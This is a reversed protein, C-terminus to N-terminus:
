TICAAWQRIDRAESGLGDSKMEEIVTQAFSILGGSAEPHKVAQLSAMLTQLALPNKWPFRM